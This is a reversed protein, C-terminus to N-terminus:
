PVPLNRPQSTPAPMVGCMGTQSLLVRSSPVKERAVKREVFLAVDVDTRRALQQRRRAANPRGVMDASDALVRSQSSM